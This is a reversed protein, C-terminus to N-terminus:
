VCSYLIVGVAVSVNLSEKKGLMPIEVVEDVKKLIEKSLGETESGFIFCTKTHKKLKRFDTSNKDQEVAVIKFGEERLNEIVSFIDKSYQWIISEEAGLAVKAFDKRKRGFRDTPTPTIGVLYIKSVGSADATRFISGVNYVSRINNLIIAREM